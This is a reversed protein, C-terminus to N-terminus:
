CQNEMGNRKVYKQWVKKQGWLKDAVFRYSSFCYSNKIFKKEYYFCKNAYFIPRLITSKKLIGDSNQWKLAVNINIEKEEKIINNIQLYM